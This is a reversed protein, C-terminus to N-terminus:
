ISSHLKLHIQSLSPLFSWILHNNKLWNQGSEIYAVSKPTALDNNFQSSVLLLNRFDPVSQIFSKKVQNVWGTFHLIWGSQHCGPIFKMLTRHVAKVRASGLLTYFVSSKVTNKHKKSRRTYFSSTSRQYLQCRTQQLLSHWGYVELGERSIDTITINLM